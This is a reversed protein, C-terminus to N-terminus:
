RDLSGFHQSLQIALRRMSLPKEMLVVQGQQEAWVRIERDTRSTMLMILIGQSPFRNIVSECLEMGNMKPMQVDTILVDPMQEAIRELAQEGNLATNISYGTRELFQKLLLSVHPEDDVILIKKM